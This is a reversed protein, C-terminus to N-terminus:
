QRYVKPPTAWGKKDLGFDRIAQNAADQGHEEAIQGLLLGVINHSFSRKGIYRTENQVERRLDALTKKM